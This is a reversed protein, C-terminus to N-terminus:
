NNQVSSSGSGQLTFSGGAPTQLTAEFNFSLSSGDYAIVTVAGSAVTSQLAASGDSTIQQYALTCGDASSGGGFSGQKLACTFGAALQGNLTFFMTRQVNQNAQIAVFTTTDFRNATVHSTDFPTVVFGTIDGSSNGFQVSAQGGTSGSLGPTCGTLCGPPSSLLPIPTGFLGPVCGTLSLLSVIVLLNIFTRM